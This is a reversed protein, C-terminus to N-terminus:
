ANSSSKRRRRVSPTATPACDDWEPPLGREEAYRMLERLMARYANYTRPKDRLLKLFDM